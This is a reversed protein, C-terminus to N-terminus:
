KMSPSTTSIRQVPLEGEELSVSAMLFYVGSIGFSSQKHNRSKRASSLKCETHTLWSQWLAVSWFYPLSLALLFFHHVIRIIWPSLRWIRAFFCVVVTLIARDQILTTWNDETIFEKGTTLSFNYDELISARSESEIRGMLADYAPNGNFTMHCEEKSAKDSTSTPIM